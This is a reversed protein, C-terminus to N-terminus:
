QRAVNPVNIFPIAKSDGVILTQPMAGDWELVTQYEILKPANILADNKLKISTAEGEANLIKSQKDGEATQIKQNAQEKIQVTRNQEEIAKQQAVVKAEVAQEFETQFKIGTLQFGTLIVDRAALIKSISREMNRAALDRESILEGAVHQGMERSIDETVVQGVVLSIWNPGVDQYVEPAKAGNLRYNLTFWVTVQQNDSTYASTKDAWKQVRADMEVVDTNFPNIFYLEGPVLTVKEVEGWKVALGIHGPSITNASECGGIVLFLLGIGAGIWGAWTKILSKQTDDM